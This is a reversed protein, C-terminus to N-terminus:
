ISLIRLAEPRSITLSRSKRERLSFSNRWILDSSVPEGGHDLMEYGTDEESFRRSRLCRARENTPLLLVCSALARLREDKTTHEQM